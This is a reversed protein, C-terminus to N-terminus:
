DGAWPNTLSVGSQEFDKLNRTALTAGHSRCIAAIQADFGDIPLGALDREHVITPYHEAAPLDFELVHGEFEIFVEVATKRLLVKRRGAPLRAIGYLIEAVTISTTYLDSGSQVNLWGVVSASPEPKMLESAVNTDVVIM